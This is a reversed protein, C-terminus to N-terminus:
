RIGAASARAWEVVIGPHDSLREPLEEPRLIWQADVVRWVGPRAVFVHDIGGPVLDRLGRGILAEIAASDSGANFDGAVVLPGEPNEPLRAALDRTQAISLELAGGLHTGVVEIYETQGGGPSREEGLALTVFLAIRTQWVPRRPSLVIRRADTIPLRSLVASGEEFGILRRSGNARAYAVDMDLEAALRDVLKGHRATWWVEQLVVVTPDLDRLAAILRRTRGEQDRFDPFGHLVNFDVLRLREPVAAPPSDAVPAGAAVPRRAITAEGAPSLLVALFSASGALCVGGAVMGFGWRPRGGRVVRAVLTLGILVSGAFLVGLAVPSPTSWRGVTWLAATCGLGCVAM